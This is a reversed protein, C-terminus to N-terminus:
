LSSRSFRSYRTISAFIFALACTRFIASRMSAADNALSVLGRRRSFIGCRRRRRTPYIGGNNVNYAAVVGGATASVPTRWRGAAFLLYHYLTMGCVDNRRRAILAAGHEVRQLM